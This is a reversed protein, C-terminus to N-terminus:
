HVFCASALFARAFFLPFSSLSSVKALGQNTHQTGYTAQVGDSIALRIGSLIIVHLLTFFLRKCKSRDLSSYMIVLYSHLKFIERSNNQNFKSNFLEHKKELTPM